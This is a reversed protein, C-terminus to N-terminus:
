GAFHKAAAVARDWKGILEAREDSGMTPSFSRDGKWAARVDEVSSYAGLSLGVLCAAGVATTEHVQPRAVSLGSLSALFECFWTNKVMGGDVRMSVPDVGDDKMAKLLDHTQYCISELMARALMAPNTARTLGFVAGRVDPDWHPAGLGTFAPVIYVGKNSTASRAYSETENASGIVGLGDRLWQVGAGATFISGELAYTVDNNIQYAVTSLLRNKSQLIENGTNVLVFCGTGYTSKLEGKRFCSQGIAAAQQDGAVGRIPIAEGFIAPDTEGFDGDCPKVEPLISAPIQFLELLDDDWKCDSINFLSTRSANTTDTAHVKGGTLCWILYTDVTGFALKGANAKERAGSVNDLIWGIKTASFYPDLLLGTKERLEREAGANAKSRCIDATRRDQWVIANYVPRGTERDWLLTTERQNTIGIGMIKINKSLAESKARHATQLSTNWIDQPDHEVWGDQPYHQAFEEQASSVINRDLDFVISRTSSTGQDIALIGQMETM